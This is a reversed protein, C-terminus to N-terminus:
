IKEINERLFEEVQSQVDEGEFKYMLGKLFDFIMKRNGTDGYPLNWHNIRLLLIALSLATRKNGNKFPQDYCLGTLLRAIKRVIREKDDEIRDYATWDQIIEDVIDQHDLGYEVNDQKAIQQNVTIVHEKDLDGSFFRKASM